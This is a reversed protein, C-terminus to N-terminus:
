TRVYFNNIIKSSIFKGVLSGIDFNESESGIIEFIQYINKQKQILKLFKYEIATLEQINVAFNCREILIFQAKQEELNIKKNDKKYSTWIDYIAYNSAFLHCSPHLSFYLEMFQEHPLSQLKALDIELPSASFYAVNFLWEVAAIDALYPLNHKTELDQILTPFFEGFDELNGSTSFYKQNYQEVLFSFFENGVIKKTIVFTLELSTEFNGFVNNRYINLRESPTAKGQNIESFITHNEPQYLHNAFNEQLRFLKSM